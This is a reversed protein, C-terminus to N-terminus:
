RVIVLVPLVHRTHNYKTHYICAHICSYHSVMLLLEQVNSSSRRPNIAFNNAVSVTGRRDRRPDTYKHVRVERWM